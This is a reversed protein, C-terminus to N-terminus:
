KKGGPSEMRISINEASTSSKADITKSQDAFGKARVVLEYEAGPPVRVAFDGRSNTSIDWRFKKETTRRIKIQVDPFARGEPTFVTGRILFGEFYSHRKKSTSTSDPAVSAQPPTSEAPPPPPPPQQAKVSPVWCAIVLAAAGLVGLRSEM